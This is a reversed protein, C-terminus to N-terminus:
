KSQKVMQINLFVQQILNLIDKKTSSSMYGWTIAKNFMATTVPPRTYGTIINWNILFYTFPVPSEVSEVQSSIEIM